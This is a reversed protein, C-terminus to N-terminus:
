SVRGLALYWRLLQAGWLLSVVAGLALFPGFPVATKRGKGQFLMMAVGVLSGGCAAVLITLLALQWGLFAGIMAILKVDGLGMGGRSLVFVALFLVAPLAAGLLADLWTLRGIAVATVMAIPIGPLSIRDPIIQYDLDILTVVLLTSFFLAYALAEGRLGYRWALWGWAAGNVAEVLPYRWAIPARCDRCRGRLWLWALIPVNDWPRIAAGCAPCHSAPFVISERRPLRYICVNLFSGVLLGLLTAAAVALGDMAVM